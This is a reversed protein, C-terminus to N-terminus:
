RPKALVWRCCTAVAAASLRSRSAAQNWPTGRGVVRLERKAARAAQASKALPIRAKSASGTIRQKNHKAAVQSRSITGIVQGRRDLVALTDTHLREMTTLVKAPPDDERCWFPGRRMLDAVAISGLWNGRQQCALLASRECLGIVGHPDIVALRDCGLGRM